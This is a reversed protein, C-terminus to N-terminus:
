KGIMLVALFSNTVNVAYQETNITQVGRLRFLPTRTLLRPSARWPASLTVSVM